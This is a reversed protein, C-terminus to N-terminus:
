AAWGTPQPEQVETAESEHEREISTNEDRDEAPRTRETKDDPKM